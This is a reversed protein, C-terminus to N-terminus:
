KKGETEMAKFCEVAAQSSARLALSPALLARGLADITEIKGPPKQKHLSLWVEGIKPMIGNLFNKLTLNVTNFFPANGDTGYFQELQKKLANLELSLAKLSTSAAQFDIKADDQIPELRLHVLFETNLALVADKAKTLRKEIESTIGSSSTPTLSTNNVYSHHSYICVLPFIGQLLDNWHPPYDTYYECMLYGLAWNDVHPGKQGKEIGSNPPITPIIDPPLFYDWLQPSFFAPTGFFHHGKIKRVCSFDIIKVGNADVLLNEPKIDAHTVAIQFKGEPALVTQSHLYALGEAASKFYPLLEKAIEKKPLTYKGTKKDCFKPRLVQEYHNFFDGAECYKTYLTVKLYGRKGKFSKRTFDKIPCISPHKLRSQLRAEDLLAELDIGEKSSLRADWDMQPCSNDLPFVIGLAKSFNKEMGVDTQSPNLKIYLRIERKPFDIFLQINSGFEYTDKPINAFFIFDISTTKVLNVKEREIIDYLAKLDEILITDIGLEKLRATLIDTFAENYVLIPLKLLEIGSIEKPIAPAQSMADSATPAPLAAHEGSPAAGLAKVALSTLDTAEGLDPSKHDTQAATKVAVFKLDSSTLPVLQSGSGAAPTPAAMTIVM